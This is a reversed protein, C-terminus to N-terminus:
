QLSTCVPFRNYAILHLQPSSCLQDAQRDKSTYSITLRMFEPRQNGTPILPKKNPYTMGSDALRNIQFPHAPLPSLQAGCATATGPEFRQEPEAERARVMTTCPDDFPFIATHSRVPHSIVKSTLMGVGKM